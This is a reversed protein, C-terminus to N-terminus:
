RMGTVIQEAPENGYLEAYAADVMKRYEPDIQIKLRGKDDKAYRMEKLKTGDMTQAISEVRRPLRQDRTAAIMRELVRVSDRSTMMGEIIEADQPGLNNKAWAEIGQLRKDADPGMLKYEEQLHSKWAEMQAAQQKPSAELYSAVIADHQEQTLGLGKAQEAFTAYLPDATDVGEVATYSEPAETQHGLKSELHTYSKAMAEINAAGDKWFKEPLWEPPGIPQPESASQDVGPDRIDGAPAISDAGADLGEANEADESM